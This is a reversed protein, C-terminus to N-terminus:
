QVNLAKLSVTAKKLSSTVAIEFNKKAPITVEFSETTVSDKTVLPSKKEGELHIKVNVPNPSSSIDIKVKGDKSPGDITRTQEEGPELEMTDNYNLKSQCGAGVFLFFLFCFGILLHRSM